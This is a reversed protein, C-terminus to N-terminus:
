IQFLKELIGTYLSSRFVVTINAIMFIYIKVQKQDNM